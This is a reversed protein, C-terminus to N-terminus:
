RNLVRRARKLVVSVYSPSVYLRDAIEAQGLGDYVYMLLILEKKKWPSNGWDTKDIYYDNRECVEVVDGARYIQERQPVYDMNAITEARECLEICTDRKPCTACLSINTTKATKNTKDMYHAKTSIVTVARGITYM